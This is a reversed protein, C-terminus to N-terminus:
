LNWLQRNVDALVADAHQPDAVILSRQPAAPFALQALIGALLFGVLAGLLFGEILTERQRAKQEKLASGAYSEIHRVIRTTREAGREALKRRLM